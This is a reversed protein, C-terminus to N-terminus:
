DLTFLDILRWVDPNNIDRQVKVLFRTRIM